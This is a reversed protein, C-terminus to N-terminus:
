MKGVILRSVKGVKGQYDVEVYDAYNGGLGGELTGNVLTVMAGQPVSIIQYPAMAVEDV